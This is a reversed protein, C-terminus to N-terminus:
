TCRRTRGAPRLLAGGPHRAASIWEGWSARAPADAHHELVRVRMGARLTTSFTARKRGSRGSTGSRLDIALSEFREALPVAELDIGPRQDPIERDALLLFGLEELQEHRSGADQDKVLGRPDQGRMLDLAEELDELAQDLVAQRDDQDRVLEVLDQFAGVPDRDEPLAAHGPLTVRASAVSAPRTRSM